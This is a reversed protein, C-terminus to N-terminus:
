RRCEYQGQLQSDDTTGNGVRVKDIPTCSDEDAAGTTNIDVQDHYADDLTEKVPDAIEPEDLQQLLLEDKDYIKAVTTDNQVLDTDDNVRVDSDTPRVLDCRYPQVPAPPVSIPKVTMMSDSRDQHSGFSKSDYQLGSHRPKHPTIRDMWHFGSGPGRYNRFQEVLVDIWYVCGKSIDDRLMRRTSRPISENYWTSALGKFSDQLNNRVVEETYFAIAQEIREAFAQVDRFYWCGDYEVFSGPGYESIPMDPWFYGFDSTKWKKREVEKATERLRIVMDAENSDRIRLEPDSSIARRFRADQLLTRAITAIDEDSLTM